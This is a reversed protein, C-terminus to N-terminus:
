FAELHKVKKTVGSSWEEIRLFFIKTLVTFNGRSVRPEIAMKTLPIKM